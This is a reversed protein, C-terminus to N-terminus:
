NILQNICWLCSKLSIINRKFNHCFKILIDDRQPNIQTINIIQKRIRRVFESDDSLQLTFCSKANTTSAEDLIQLSPSELLRDGGGQVLQNLQRWNMCWTTSDKDIPGFSVRIAHMTNWLLASTRHFNSVYTDIYYFRIGYGNSSGNSYLVSLEPPSNKESHWLFQM